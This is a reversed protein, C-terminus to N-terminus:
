WIKSNQEFKKMNLLLVFYFIVSMFSAVQTFRRLEMHKGGTVVYLCSLSTNIQTNELQIFITMKYM